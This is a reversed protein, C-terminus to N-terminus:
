RLFACLQKIDRTLGIHLFLKAVKLNNGPSNLFLQEAIDDCSNSDVGDFSQAYDDEWDRNASHAYAGAPTAHTVRTTTVIGTAKNAAQSWWHSVFKYSIRCISNRRPFTWVQAWTMVSDVQITPDMQTTCNKYEVNADLGLTDVDTKIGCLYATATCASDAM